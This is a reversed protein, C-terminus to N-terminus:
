AVHVAGLRVGSNLHQSRLHVAEALEGLPSGNRGDFVLREKPRDDLKHIGLGLSLRLSHSRSQPAGCRAVPDNFRLARALTHRRAARTHLDRRQASGSAKKHQRHSHTTHGTASVRCEVVHTLVIHQMHPKCTSQLPDWSFKSNGKDNDIRSVSARPSHVRLRRSCLALNCRM